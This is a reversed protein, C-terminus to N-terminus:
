KSLKQYLRVVERAEKVDHVRLLNAGNMLAITNLSTTGNLAENASTNLTKWIMSKRSLGALIPLNFLNLQQLSKLLEFNHNTTKAFGFGPDLIIDNVGLTNLTKIKESFYHVVDHVVSQYVAKEQMNQPSGKMHMIIYPVQHKKVVSFMNRDLDGASIDNIVAAGNKIAKDAIGARFTDVSILTSPFHNLIIELASLVRKEEESESIHKAGPRSSYGGIDIFDAEETLHKEVLRLIDDENKSRSKEYFSDPTINVIGMVRPQNFNILKGKCNITINTDKM